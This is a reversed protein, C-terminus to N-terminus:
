TSVLKLRIEPQATGSFTRVAVQEHRDELHGIFHYPPDTSKKRGSKLPNERM